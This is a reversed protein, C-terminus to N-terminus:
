SGYKSNVKVRSLRTRGALGCVRLPNPSGQMPRDRTGLLRTDTQSRGEQAGLVTHPQSSVISLLMPQAQGEHLKCELSFAYLIVLVYIIIENIPPSSWLFYFLLVSNYTM